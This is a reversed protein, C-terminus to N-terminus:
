RQLLLLLAAAATIALLTDYHLEMKSSTALMHDLVQLALMIAVFRFSFPHLKCIYM